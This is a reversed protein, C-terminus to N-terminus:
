SFDGLDTTAGPVGSFDGLDMTVWMAAAAEAANKAALADSAWSRASRSGVPAGPVDVGPATEAWGQAATIAGAASTASGAAATASGAAATANAAVNAESAAAASASASAATASTTASSAASTATGASATASTASSSASSASGAAASASTAANSASTAAASASGAAATASGSAASASTAANTASASAASASTVADAASTSAASASASANTASTAAGSASTAASSASSAAAAASAAADSRYVGIIDDWSLLSTWPVVDVYRWELDFTSPNTRLEIPIGPSGQPGTLPAGSSWDGSTNSRKIYLTYPVVSIDLFGFGEPQNDYQARYHAYSANFTLSGWADPKFPLGGQLKDVLNRVDLALQLGAKWAPGQIFSFDTQDVGNSGPWPYKLTIESASVREFIEAAIGKLVFMDGKLAVFNTLYGIVSANGNVVSVSNTVPM